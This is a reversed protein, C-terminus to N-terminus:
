NKCAIENIELVAEDISKSFINLEALTEVFTEDKECEESMQNLLGQLSMLLAKQKDNM